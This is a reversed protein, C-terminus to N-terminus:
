LTKTNALADALLRVISLVVGPTVTSKIVEPIDIFTVPETSTPAPLMKRKLLPVLKVAVSM